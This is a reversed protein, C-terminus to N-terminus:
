SVLPTSENITKGNDLNLPASSGFISYVIASSYYLSATLIFVFNWNQHTVSLLYGTLYVGVVGTFASFMNSFGFLIPAFERSLDIQNGSMGGDLGGLVICTNILIAIAIASLPVYVIILLLTAPILCTAAQFIKRMNTMSLIGRNSLFDSTASAALSVLPRLLYPLFAVIGSSTLSFGLKTQIYTPMWSLFVYWGWGLCFNTWCLSLVPGNFLLRLWPTRKSPIQLSPEIIGEGNVIQTIKRRGNEILALESPHIGICSISDKEMPSDKVILIWWPIILLIILGGAIFFVSPWELYHIILPSVGMAIVTGFSGGSSTVTSVRTIQYKPFWLSIMNTNGTFFMGQAAGAIIRVVVVLALSKTVFPLVITVLGTVIAGVGMTLKFGFRTALWGGIIQTLV